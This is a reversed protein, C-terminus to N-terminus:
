WLWRFFLEFFVLINPPSYFIIILTPESKAIKVVTLNKNVFFAHLKYGRQRGSIM